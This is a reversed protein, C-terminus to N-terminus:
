VAFVKPMQYPMLGEAYLAQKISDVAENANIVFVIKKDLGPLSYYHVFKTFLRRIGLGRGMVTLGDCRFLQEFAVKIYADIM